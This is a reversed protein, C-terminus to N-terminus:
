EIKRNNFKIANALGIEMLADIKAKKQPTLESPIEPIEPKTFGINKKYGEFMTIFLEVARPDGTKARQVLAYCISTTYKRFYQNRHIAVEDWFGLLKKWDALTDVNVGIETAFEKQTKLKREQAPIALWEIFALLNLPNRINDAQVFKFPKFPKQKELIPTIPTNKGVEKKDSVQINSFYISTIGETKTKTLIRM